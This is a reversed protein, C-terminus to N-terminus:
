ILSYVSPLTHAHLVVNTRVVLCGLQHALHSHGLHPHGLHPHGLHSHGLHPHGLLPGIQPVLCYHAFVLNEFMM